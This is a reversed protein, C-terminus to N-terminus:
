RNALIYKFNPNFDIYNKFNFNQSKRKLWKTSLISKYISARQIININVKSESSFKKFATSEVKSTKLPSNKTKKKIKLELWGHSFMTQIPNKQHRTYYNIINQLTIKM